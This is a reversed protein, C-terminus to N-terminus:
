LKYPEKKVVEFFARSGPDVIIAENGSKILYVNCRFATENDIGLWFIEYNDKKFLCTVKELDIEYNKYTDILNSM